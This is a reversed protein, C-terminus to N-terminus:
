LKLIKQEKLSTEEQLLCVYVRKETAEYKNYKERLNSNEQSCQERVEVNKTPNTYVRTQKNTPITDQESKKNMSSM